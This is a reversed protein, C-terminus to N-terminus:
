EEINEQTNNRVISAVWERAEPYDTSDLVFEQGKAASRLRVRDGDRNWQEPRPNFTLPPRGNPM